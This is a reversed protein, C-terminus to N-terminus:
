CLLKGVQYSAGLIGIISSLLCVINYPTSNFEMMAFYASSSKKAVKVCCFTQIVPDAM